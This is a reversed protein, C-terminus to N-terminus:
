AQAKKAKRRKLAAALALITMTAPEPVASSYTIDDIMIGAAGSVSSSNRFLLRDYSVPAPGTVPANDIFYDEWGIGTFMLNNNVYMEWVDNQLGANFTMKFGMDLVTGASINNMLETAVFATGNYDFVSLRWSTDLGGLNELRIWNGRQGTGNDISVTIGETNKGGALPKWKWSAEFVKNTENEGAKQTLAPSYPQDGFSGSGVQQSIRWSKNGSIAGSSVVQQDWAPNTIQWGNYGDAIAGDAYSEFDVSVTDAMSVSALVTAGLLALIKKM